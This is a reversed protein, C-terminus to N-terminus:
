QEECDPLSLCSVSIQVKLGVNWGELQSSGRNAAAVRIELRKPINKLSFRGANSYRRKWAFHEGVSEGVIDNLVASLSELAEELDDHPM